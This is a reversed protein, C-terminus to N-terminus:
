DVDKVCKAYEKCDKIKMCKNIKAADKTVGKDKKCAKLCADYSGQKIKDFAGAKKLLDIKKMDVKGKAVLVEAICEKFTKTCMKECDVKVKGCGIGAFSVLALATLAVIGKKM